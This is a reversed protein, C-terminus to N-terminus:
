EVLINFCKKWQLLFLSSRFTFAAASLPMQPDKLTANLNNIM